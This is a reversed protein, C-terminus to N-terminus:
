LDFTLPSLLGAQNAENGPRGVTWPKSISCAILFQVTLLGVIYLPLRLVMYSICASKFINENSCTGCMMMTLKTLGSPAIQFFLFFSVPMLSTQQPLRRLTTPQLPPIPPYVLLPFPHFLLCPFSFPLSTLSQNAPSSKERVVDM